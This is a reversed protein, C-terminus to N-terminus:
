RVKVRKTTVSSLGATDTVKVSVTYSGSTTYTHKAIAASQPGVTTGDGFTFTYSAIPTADTDTSASADATVALPAKGTSPTVTLAATPASETQVTVNATATSSLGATDTVTVTVTYTGGATYSHTATAAAQAGTVAGDGWDFRYTSIGTADTDSSASADATVTLPAAGSPPSVSLAATPAGDSVREVRTASATLGSSDTVTVMVTYTGAATYTHQTASTSTTASGVAPSGDGFDFTFGALTAGAGPTSASADATVPLPASGTTPTTALVAAPAPAASSVRITASATGSAGASDTVTVTVTYAGDVAYTHSAQASSQPGTAPSGDGFDFSYGTVPSADDDISASADATVGLPGNGALAVAALPAVNPALGFEYAGRDDYLRPGAGTNPTRPDDVRPNGDIDASPQGSVGSNASDIAPSGATLHFDGTVASKWSPDAQIGHAEQGTASQFSSLSSYSVSSWILLVDAASLNVLDYDMTTGSTSGSEVRIDGHTRPSNIGNDVSINNAITAGTSSQEVNIGATVNKYVSNAVIRQGTCSFNDIGHDGNNYTVNNYLLTNSSGTYSEIGSDENDHSVNGDVTNGPSSYLRIGAAIRQYGEANNFTTNGRIEDRTSNSTLVIGYESNHDATNGSILSDTVGSFKIGGKTLGSQQQGAYTIHNGSIAVHSSSSVDIGYGTTKTISFGQITVWSKSAIAFGNAGGTLTVTAGPASTFTVPSTSTGSSSVTVTEPYTGAAVQVTQGAVVKAAAAGITCYPQAQTGAASDSCSPNANDVFLVTGAASAGATALGPGLVILTAACARRLGRRVPTRQHSSMSSLRLM